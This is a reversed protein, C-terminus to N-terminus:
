AENELERSYGLIASTAWVSGVEGFVPGLLIVAPASGFVNVWANKNATSRMEKLSHRRIFHTTEDGLVWALEAESDLCALMGTTVYFTGNPFTWANRYPARIVRVKLEVEPNELQNTVLRVAVSHIYAELETNSYVAGVEELRRELRKADKWMKQEDTELAVTKAGAGFPAVNTSQCGLASTLM